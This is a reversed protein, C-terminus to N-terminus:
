RVLGLGRVRDLEKKLADIFITIARKKLAELEARKQELLVM